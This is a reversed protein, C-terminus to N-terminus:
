LMKDVSPALLRLHFLDPHRFELVLHSVAISDDRQWTKRTDQSGAPRHQLGRDRSSAHSRSRACVFIM